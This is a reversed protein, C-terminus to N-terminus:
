NFPVRKIDFKLHGRLLVDRAGIFDGIAYKVFGNAMLGLVSNSNLELLREVYVGFNSKLNENIAFANSGDNEIYVKCIWELPIVNNAYIATMEEAAKVLDVHRAKQHLLKFYNQYIDLHYMHNKDSIGVELCELLEDKYKDNALERNKLFVNLLNKLALYKRDTDESKIEQCFINIIQQHDGLQNTLNLLKVYYDSYKEPALDLLQGLIDPLEEAKACNSLGQLALLKFDESCGLAMKLYKVAEAKNTEQHAAGLLIYAMGNKKDSRM